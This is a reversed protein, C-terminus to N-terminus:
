SYYDPAYRLTAWQAPDHGFIVTTGPQAAERRLREVSAQGAVPDTMAGLADEEWNIATYVADVTFLLRQGNGLTVLVSQHGLTHGPTFLLDLGDCVHYDGQITEYRLGPVDWDRRTIKGARAAELEAEQVLIPVGRFHANGGAHDFHLHTNIVCTVDAPALGLTVLQRDVADAATMHPFIEEGDLDGSRDIWMDPMGTDVLYTADDAQALLMPVPVHLRGFRSTNPVLVDLGVECWGSQLLYLRM